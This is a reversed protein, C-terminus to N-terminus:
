EELPVSTVQLTSTSDTGVILDATSTSIPSEIPASSQPLFQLVRGLGTTFVHDFFGLYASVFLSIGVVLSTYVITQTRTPWAVHRLESRTDKIYQFISM